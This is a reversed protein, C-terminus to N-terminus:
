PSSPKCHSVSRAQQLKENVTDSGSVNVARDDEAKHWDAVEGIGHIEGMAAVDQWGSEAVM